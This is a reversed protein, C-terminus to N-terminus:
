TAGGALLHARLAQAAAITQSLNEDTPDFGEIVSPSIGHAALTPALHDLAGRRESPQLGALGHGLAALIDAREAARARAMPSLAEFEPPKEFGNPSSM